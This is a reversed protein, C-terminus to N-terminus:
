YVAVVIKGRPFKSKWFLKAIFLPQLLSLKPNLLTGKHVLDIAAASLSLHYYYDTLSPEIQM